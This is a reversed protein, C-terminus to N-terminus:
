IIKKKKSIILKIKQYKQNEPLSEQKKKIYDDKQQKMQKFQEKM